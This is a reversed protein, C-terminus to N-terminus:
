RLAELMEVAGRGASLARGLDGAATLGAAFGLLGVVAHRAKTERRESKRDRSGRQRESQAMRPTARKAKQGDM